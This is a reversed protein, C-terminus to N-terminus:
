KNDKDNSRDIYISNLECDDDDDMMRDVATEAGDVGM